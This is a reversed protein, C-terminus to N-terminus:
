QQTASLFIEKEKKYYKVEDNNKQTMFFDLMKQNREEINFDLNWYLKKTCESCVHNPRRLSEHLGNSGNMVCNAHICHKLSFMHAVEHATTKIMKDLCPSYNISDLPEDIYRFMSSVSIRKSPYALGFVYNWSEQPYIDCNTLAITVTADPAINKYLISDLLYAAHLQEHSSDYRRSQAPVVSDHIGKMIVTKLGFFDQLYASTLEVIKYEAASFNGIPQIYIKNKEPTPRIIKTKQYDEFSQGKEPHSELWDGPRIKGMDTNLTSLLSLKAIDDDKKSVVNENCSILLLAFFFFLICNLKKM